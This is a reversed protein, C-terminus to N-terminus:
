PIPIPSLSKEEGHIVKVPTAIAREAVKNIHPPVDDPNVQKM